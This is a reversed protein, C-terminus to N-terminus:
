PTKTIQLPNQSSVTTGQDMFNPFCPNLSFSETAFETVLLLSCWTIDEKGERPSPLLCKTLVCQYLCLACSILSLGKANQHCLKAKWHLCM